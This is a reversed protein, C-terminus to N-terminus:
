FYNVRALGVSGLSIQLDDQDNYHVNSSIHRWLKIRIWILM